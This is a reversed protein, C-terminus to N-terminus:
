NSRRFKSRHRAYARCEALRTTAEDWLFPLRWYESFLKADNTLISRDHLIHNQFLDGPLSRLISGPLEPDYSYGCCDVTQQGFNFEASRMAQQM